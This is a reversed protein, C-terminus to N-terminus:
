WVVSKRDRSAIDLVGAGRLDVLRAHHTGTGEDIVHRTFHGQGDNEYVMLRPPNETYRDKVGIEGVLLDLRGNGCIDGLQLSHPVLLFDEILHEDSPERLDDKPGFWALKGG